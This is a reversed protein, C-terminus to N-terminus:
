SPHPPHFPPSSSTTVLAGTYGHRPTCAPCSHDKYPVCTNPQGIEHRDTLRSDDRFCRGESVRRPESLAGFRERGGCVGGRTQLHGSPPASLRPRSCTFMAIVPGRSQHLSVVWPGREHPQTPLGRNRDLTNSTSLHTLVRHSM